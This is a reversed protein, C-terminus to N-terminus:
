LEDLRKQEEDDGNKASMYDSVTTDRLTKKVEKFKNWDSYRFTRKRDNSTCANLSEIFNFARRVKSMPMERGYHSRIESPTLTVDKDVALRNLVIDFLISVTLCEEEINETLLIQRDPNKSLSIGENLNNELLDHDIEKGGEITLNGGRRQTLVTTIRKLEELAEVCGEYPKCEEEIFKKDYVICHEINSVDNDGFGELETNKLFEEASEIDLQDLMRAQKKDNENINEGSKVEVLLLNEGDYLLFDPTADKEQNRIPIDPFVTVLKYGFDIFGEDDEFGAVSDMFTNYSEIEGKQKGWESM